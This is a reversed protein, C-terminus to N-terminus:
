KVARLLRLLEAPPVFGPIRGAGEVPPIHDAQMLLVTPLEAVGYRLQIKEEPEGQGSLDLELPVFREAVERQVAPDSWTHLDLLKCAGCWAARFEILLPRGSERAASVARAEDRLWAIGKGPGPGEALALLFALLLPKM